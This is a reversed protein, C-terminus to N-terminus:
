PRLPFNILVQGMTGRFSTKPVLTSFTSFVDGPALTALACVQDGPPSQQWLPEQMPKMKMKDAMRTDIQLLDISHADNCRIESRLVFAQGVSLWPRSCDM